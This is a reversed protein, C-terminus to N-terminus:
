APWIFEADLPKVATRFLTVAADVLRDLHVDDAVRQLLVSLGVLM